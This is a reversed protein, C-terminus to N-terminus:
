FIDGSILHHGTLWWDAVWSNIMPFFIAEKQPTHYM